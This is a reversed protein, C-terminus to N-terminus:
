SGWIEVLVVKGLLDSKDIEAGYWYQGLSLDKIHADAEATGQGDDARLPLAVLVVALFLGLILVTRM